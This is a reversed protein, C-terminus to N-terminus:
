RLDRCAFLQIQHLTRGRYIVDRVGLDTVSEFQRVIEPPPSEANRVKMVFLANQGRRERYGPWFYFQNLPVESSKFYVSADVGAAAREGPLYFSLLSTIGYHNGIVFVPAGEAQLEVRAQHVVRAMEQWGRVRRLPDVRAPLSYGTLKNTLNTDHSLIVLVAGLVAGVTAWTPVRRRSDSWRDHWYLVAVALLPLVSPAIWNPLVRSRVTYALYGLFLPASLCWLYVALPRQRWGRWIAIAAISMAVAYIPNLLGFQAGVFELLYRPTFHWVRDLGAREGLHTLTIWGHQYNWLLVPLTMIGNIALALWLGPRRLQRRASPWVIFFTLWCAWQLLATYKCLFGLGAWVGVWCWQATSDERLARWGHLVALMWCFASLPDITMLVGGAALLPMTSAALVLWCGAQASAERALFRLMMVSLVASLVPAFFRIGFASDGWLHTGVWQVYAIMPPKSYYSLALHKSWLWQYAEDEALEIKDSALYLLRAALIVAIMAHGLWLWHQPAWGAAAPMPSPIWAASPKLSPLRHHWDPFWRPGIRRWAYDPLKVATWACALGLLAGLVVDSPYHVGNYVRSYAVATAIPYAFRRTRPYFYGAFCVVAFWNFAHSSPLSYSGTRGVLVRAEPLAVFPRPRAVQHKVLQVFLGNGAVLTLTLYAACVWAKLGERRLWLLVGVVLVPMFVRNGSLWPMVQDLVPHTLVQNAFRFGTEDVAQLGPLITESM